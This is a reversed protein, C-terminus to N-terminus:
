VSDRPGQTEPGAEESGDRGDGDGSGDGDGEGDGERRGRLRKRLGLISAFEISALKRLRQRVGDLSRENLLLFVAGGLLAVIGIWALASVAGSQEGAARRAAEAGATRGQPTVGYLVAPISLIFNVM